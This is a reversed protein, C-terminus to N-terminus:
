IMLGSNSSTYGFAQSITDNQIEEDLENNEDTNGM